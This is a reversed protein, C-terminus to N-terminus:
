CGAWLGCRLGPLGCCQNGLLQQCGSQGYAINQNDFLPSGNEMWTQYRNWGAYPISTLQNVQGWEFDMRVTTTDTLKYTGALSVRQQKKYELDRWTQHDDWLANVRIAAKDNLERNVDVSLRYSEESDVQLTASLFDGFVARKTTTNVMGGAEGLGFLISNPGRTLTLREMNYTDGNLYWTFYNRSAQRPFNSQSLGRTTINFDNEQSGNGTVDSSVEAVGIGYEIADM